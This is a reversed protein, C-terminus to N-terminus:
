LAPFMPLVLFFSTQGGLNQYHDRANGPDAPAVAPAFLGRLAPDPWWVFYFPREAAEKFADIAATEEVTARARREFAAMTPTFGQTTGPTAPYFIDYYDTMLAGEYRRVTAYIGPPNNVDLFDMEYVARVTLVAPDSSKRLIFISANRTGSAGRYSTFVDATAPVQTALMERFQEPTSLTRPDIGSPLEITSPRFTSLGTRALGFVATAGQVDEHLRDRLVEALTLRGYNPAFYTNLFASESGYFATNAPIGIQISGYSGIRTNSLAIGQYILVAASIVAAAIVIVILLEAFSFGAQRFRRGNEPSDNPPNM